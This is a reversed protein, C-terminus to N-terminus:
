KNDGFRFTFLYKKRSSHGKKFEVSIYDWKFKRIIYQQMDVNSLKVNFPAQIASV